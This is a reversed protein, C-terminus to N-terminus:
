MTKVRPLKLTGGNLKVGLLSSNLVLGKRVEKVIQGISGLLHNAEASMGCYNGGVAMKLLFLLDQRPQTAGKLSGLTTTVDV